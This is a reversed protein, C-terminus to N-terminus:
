QSVPASQPLRNIKDAASLGAAVIGGEEAVVTPLKEGAYAMAYAKELRERFEKAKAASGGKIIGTQTLAEVVAWLHPAVRHVWKRASSLGDVIRDDFTSKTLPAIARIIREVALLAVVIKVVIDLWDM